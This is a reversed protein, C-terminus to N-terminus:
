NSFISITPLMVGELQNKKGQEFKLVNSNQEYDRLFTSHLLNDFDSVSYSEVVFKRHSNSLM